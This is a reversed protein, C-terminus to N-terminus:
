KDRYKSYIVSIKLNNKALRTSALSMDYAVKSLVTAGGQSVNSYTTEVPVLTVKNWGPHQATYESLSLGSDKYGKYMRSVLVSINSFTYGNTSSSYSTIYSLRSDAVQKHAFFTQVSDSSLMLLTKPIPLKYNKVSNDNIRQMFIRATNLTDAEHGDMIEAIPLELETFIGAPTKLFTCTDTDIFMQLQADEQIINTKQLVEETGAFSSTSTLITDGDKVQYSVLIQPMAVSAMCGLGNTIEFFFGPCINQNFYYSKSFDRDHKGDYFKRMLYTGYNDYTKGETDTYPKNLPIRVFPVFGSANRIDDSLLGNSLTYSMEQQISGTGTRIMGNDVPNFDTYYTVDENYPVALEHAILKMMALSDGYYTPFYLYLNCDKAKVKEAKETRDTVGEMYISDLDPFQNVGLPRFQTMYNCKIYSGTEPDKINGLYGTTSRSVINKARVSSSKVDFDKASVNVMDVTQVLSTGITDTTDDCSVLLTVIAILSLLIRNM